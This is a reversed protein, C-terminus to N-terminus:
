SQEIGADKKGKFHEAKEQWSNGPIRQREIGKIFTDSECIIFLEEKARTVATYLLERFTMVAHSNHICLFVKDWESGQAKHITIAYGLILADLAGSSSIDFTQESDLSYLTIIHSAARVTEADKDLSSASALNALLMDIDSGTSQARVSDHGWYNMTVSAERPTIGNYAPNPRINQILVDEKEYLCKDGVAYYSKQWGHIIEYVFRSEHEAIKTAIHKNLEITGCKKNFPILIADTDPNYTGREYSQTFFKSLTLTAVHAGVRKKWPHIQLQNPVNLDDYSILHSELPNKTHHILQGNLIMHALRLIPSNLAQRHVETLEIVPLELMKYGLIASGFVPPLQQIDGLFIFQIDHNIADTILKFLELSVMSAEEIVITKLTPPLPNDAHRKPEFRKSIKISGDEQPVAVEVPEYELLKHITICQAQLDASLNKRINNTARRTFACIAIGPGSSPLFKHHAALPPLAGSDMLSSIAAKQITTKGTGAAGIVVCSQGSSILNIAELQAENYTITNGFRDTGHPSSSHISEHQAHQRQGAHPDYQNTESSLPQIHHDSQANQAHGTETSLPHHEYGHDHQSQGASKETSLPDHHGHEHEHQDHEHEHQSHGDLTSLPKLAHSTAAAKREQAEKLLKQLKKQLLTPSKSPAASPHENM